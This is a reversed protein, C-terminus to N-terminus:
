APLWGGAVMAERLVKQGSESMAEMPPRLPGAPLSMWTLAQKVPIPNPEVFLADVVPMLAFHLRAAEALDGAWVADCMARVERGVVHAVAAIAGVAGLCLLSFTMVDEGSYVQFTKPDTERLVVMAQHLDNSADKLGIVQPVERWLRIITEPDINRSTRGPINYLIMPLDVAEAIAQFHHFIGQQTPKNYYPCVQLTADVGVDRAARTLEMAELTSNSGTGAIVPVRRAVRETVFRIVEAHEPHSLTPSEGTTGCPVIGDCGVDGVYHEVLDALGDWDISMDDRFPTIIPLIVGRLGWALKRMSM